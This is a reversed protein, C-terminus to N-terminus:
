EITGAKIRSKIIKKKYGEICKRKKMYKINESDYPESVNM